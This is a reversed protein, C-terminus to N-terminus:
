AVAMAARALIIQALQEAFRAHEAQLPDAEAAAIPLRLTEDGVHFTWTRTVDTFESRAPQNLPGTNGEFRYEFRADSTIPIARHECSSPFRPNIAERSQVPVSPDVPGRFVHLWDGAVLYLVLVKSDHADLAAATSAHDILPSLDALAAGIAQCRTEAESYVLSPGRRVEEVVLLVEDEVILPDGEVIFSENEHM